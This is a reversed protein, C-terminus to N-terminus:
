EPSPPPCKTGLDVKLGKLVALIGVLPQLLAVPSLSRTQASLAGGGMYSLTLMIGHGRSFPYKILFFSLISLKKTLCQLMTGAAAHWWAVMGCTVAAFSPAFFLHEM